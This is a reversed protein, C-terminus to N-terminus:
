LLEVFYDNTLTKYDLETVTEPNKFVLKKGSGKDKRKSGYLFIGIYCDLSDPDDHPYLDTITLDTYEDYYKELRERIDVKHVDKLLVYGTGWTLKAYKM